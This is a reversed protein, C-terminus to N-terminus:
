PQVVARMPLPVLVRQWPWSEWRSKSTGSPFPLSPPIPSPAADSPHRPNMETRKGTVDLHSAGFRKSIATHKEWHCLPSLSKSYIMYLCPFFIHIYLLLDSGLPM